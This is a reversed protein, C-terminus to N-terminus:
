WLFVGIKESRGCSLRNNEQFDVIEGVEEKYLESIDPVLQRVFKIKRDVNSFCLSYKIFIWINLSEFGDSFWIWVSYIYM